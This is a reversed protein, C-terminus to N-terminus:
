DDGLYKYTIPGDSDSIDVGPAKRLSPSICYTWLSDFKIYQGTNDPLSSEFDRKMATGEQKLINYSLQVLAKRERLARGEGSFTDLEHVWDDIEIDLEEPLDENEDFYWTNGKDPSIVNPADKLASRICYTWLGGFDSYHASYNPLYEEFDNKTASGNEQLYNYALQIMARQREVSDGEGTPHVDQIWDDIDDLQLQRVIDSDDPFYQWFGTGGRPPKEVDPLESLSERLFNVWQREGGTMSKTDDVHHIDQAYEQLESTTLKGRDQLLRYSELVVNARELRDTKSRGPIATGVIELVDDPSSIQPSRTTKNGAESLSADSLPVWWVRGRSGVKRTELIDDAVLENLKNHVTRRSWGLEETIDNATLPKAPDSRADFVSIAAEPSIKDSYQGRQDRERDM